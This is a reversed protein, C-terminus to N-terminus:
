VERAQMEIRMADAVVIQDGPIPVRTGVPADDLLLDLQTVYDVGRLGELIAAVDSIFVDRGFDWGRAEPGGTLPHLFTALATQVRAAVAGAEGPVRPAILAAVGVPRYTPGIVAIRPAWLTAPARAALYDHVHQRLELSPQPRPEHSQPVIIVTVWGPAPRRNPATAPLVRVAAVGPSAERAMSEYDRAALARWRHRLTQPGRSRVADPLEGDAGGSAARPNSVSEAFAGGLMQTIADRPVNGVQGRAARYVRARINDAGVTALRGNTNDGLALRGRAREVVYHRDTPSSFYLHPRSRWRVWVERVKNTRPDVVTRIDEDTFGAALVEDRLMPLEVSARAGELERVEIEEGPLIPFQSFFLTQGPQGNGSGLVEGIITQRQTAWAANLYIGHVRIREPAGNEKLRARVWDRPNGFRPLAALSVTGGTYSEKLPTELTIAGGEITAIRSAERTDTQVVAVLQRPEFLAAELPSTTVVRRGNATKVSAKPRPLVAPAIFSVMGPRALSMTDDSAKVDRWREGDWGEWVFAPLAADSEDVDLYLSVLDNPLPKDFGLYLTPTADEVPRFPLFFTGTSRADQTHLEFQFDNYTCCHQVPQSPPRWDYSVTFGTIGPGSTRSVEVKRVETAGPGKIELTSTIVYSGSLLQARLWFHTDGNVETAAIDLPVTFSPNSAGGFYAADKVDSLKQAAM